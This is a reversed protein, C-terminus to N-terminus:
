FMSGSSINGILYRVFNANDFRKASDIFYKVECETMDGFDKEEHQAIKVNICYESLKKAIKIAKGRADPDLCLTIPTNYKIIKKFLAYKEDMWSGLLCTSNNPCHLLDFVGEVLVIPKDFVLDLEKFIIDKREANCNKYRRFADSNISRAIYYNLNQKKDFSPFIVRDKYEYQSSVGIRFRAIDKLSFNRSRLYTIHHKWIQSDKLEYLLKFDDPLNVETEETETILEENRKKYVSWLRSACEKQSSYKKAVYGINSGKSECVWCHYIGDALSISLKKKETVKGSAKCIPCVVAVNECSTNTKYKGFCAEFLKLKEQITIM